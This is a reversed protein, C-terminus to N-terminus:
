LHSLPYTPWRVNDGHVISTKHPYVEASRKLFSLPTLPVFNADNKDLNTNYMDTM